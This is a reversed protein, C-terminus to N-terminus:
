TASNLTWPLTGDLFVQSLTWVIASSVFLLKLCNWDQNMTLIATTVFIPIINHIKDWSFSFWRLALVCNSYKWSSKWICCCCQAKTSNFTLIFTWQNAHWNLYIIKGGVDCMQMYICKIHSNCTLWIRHLSANKGNVDSFALVVSIWHYYRGARKSNWMSGQELSQLWRGRVCQGTARGGCFM